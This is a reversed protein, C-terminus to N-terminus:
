GRRAPPLPCPEDDFLLRADALARGLPVGRPCLAEAEAIEDPDIATRRLLARARAPEGYARAYMLARMLAAGPLAPACADCGTCAARATARDHEELVSRDLAGFARPDLAAALNENLLAVNTMKSTISAFAPEAWIVKLKAQGFTLGQALFHAFLERDAGELEDLSKRGQTKMAILGLDADKAVALAREMAPERLHRYSCSVMGCDIWPLEAAREIVATMNQHTSLGVSRIRGSDKAAQAWDRIEDKLEDGDRVDHLLLIDIQQTGMRELSTNLDRELDESRRGQSKTLLTLRARDDPFAALYAGIARESAGGGYAAATDWLAIGLELARRLLIRSGPQLDFAGYSLIPVELGSRGLTRTPLTDLPPPAEVPQSPVRLPEQAPPPAGGSCGPGVLAAAGALGAAQLLERRSIPDSV